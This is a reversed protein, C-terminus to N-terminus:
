LRGTELAKRLREEAVSDSLMQPLKAVEADTMVDPGYGGGEVLWDGANLYMCGGDYIVVCDKEARVATAEVRLVVRPM